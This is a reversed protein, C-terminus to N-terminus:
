NLSDMGADEINFPNNFPEDCKIDRRAAIIDIAPIIKFELFYVYEKHKTARMYANNDGNLSNVLLSINLTNDPCVVHHGLALQSPAVILSQGTKIQKIFENNIEGHKIFVPVVSSTIETKNNRATMIISSLKERYCLAVLVYNDAVDVDKTVYKLYDNTIEELETPLNFYKSGNIGNTQFKLM